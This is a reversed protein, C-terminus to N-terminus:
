WGMTGPEGKFPGVISDTVWGGYFNGPQPRVIEGNVVCRDTKHAYFALHDKLAAYSASPDAYAWALLEIRQTGILLDYYHARGKFECWSGRGGPRQLFDMRIDAPPLYYTPPHSTELIRYAHRTEAILQGFAFVQITGPFAELRPPRPYDWVCEQDPGPPIRPPHMTQQNVAQDAPYHNFRVVLFGSPRPCAFFRCDSFYTKILVTSCFCKTM